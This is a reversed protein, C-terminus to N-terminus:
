TRRKTKQRMFFRLLDNGELFDPNIKLATNIAAVAQQMSGQEYHARAINYYLGEDEPLAILAKMYNDISREFLGRQRNTIGSQNYSNGVYACLKEDGSLLQKATPLDGTEMFEMIIEAREVIEANQSGQDGTQPTLDPYVTEMLDQEQVRILQLVFALLTEPDNDQFSVPGFVDKFAKSAFLAPQFARIEKDLERQDAALMPTDLRRQLVDKLGILTQKINKQKLHRQAEHLRKWILPVDDTKITETM